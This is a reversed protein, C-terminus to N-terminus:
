ASAGEGITCRQVKIGARKDWKDWKDWAAQGVPCIRQGMDWDRLSPVTPCSDPHESILNM